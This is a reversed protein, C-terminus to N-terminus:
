KINITKKKLCFVAYSNRMLSQLESTHEESRKRSEVNPYCDATRGRIRRRYIGIRNGQYIPRRPCNRWSVGYCRGPRYSPGHALPLLPYYSATEDTVPHANMKWPWPLYMSNQRWNSCTRGCPKLWLFAAPAIRAHPKM